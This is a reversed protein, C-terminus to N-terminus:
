EDLTALTRKSIFYGVFSAIGIALSPAGVVAGWAIVDDKPAVCLNVIAIISAITGIITFLTGLMMEYHLRNILKEKFPTRPKNLGNLLEQVDIDADKELASMVIKTRSDTENKRNRLTQWVIFAPLFVCIGLPVLCSIFDNILYYWQSGDM